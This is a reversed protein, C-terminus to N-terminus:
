ICTEWFPTLRVALEVRRQKGRAKNGMGFRQLMMKLVAIQKKEARALAAEKDCGKPSLNNVLPKRPLRQRLIPTEFKKMKSAKVSDTARKFSKGKLQVPLDAVNKSRKIIATL